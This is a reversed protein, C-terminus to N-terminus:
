IGSVVNDLFLSYIYLTGGDRLGTCTSLGSMTFLQHCSSTVPLASPAPVLVGKRCSPAFTSMTLQDLVEFVGEAHICRLLRTAPTHM